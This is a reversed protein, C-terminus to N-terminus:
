NLLYAKSQQEPSELSVCHKWLHESLWFHTSDTVYRVNKKVGVALQKSIQLFEKNPAPYLSTKLTDITINQVINGMIKLFDNTLM